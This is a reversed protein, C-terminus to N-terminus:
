TGSIGNLSSPKRPSTFSVMSLCPRHMTATLSPTTSLSPLGKMVLSVPLTEQYAAIREPSISTYNEKNADNDPLGVDVIVGPNGRAGLTFGYWEYAAGHVRRVLESILFAKAKAFETILIQEPLHALRIERPM